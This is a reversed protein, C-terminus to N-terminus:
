ELGAVVESLHDSGGDARTRGQDRDDALPSVM